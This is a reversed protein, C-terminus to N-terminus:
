KLEKNNKNVALFNFGIDITHTNGDKLYFKYYRGDTKVDAVFDNDYLTMDFKEDFKKHVEKGMEFRNFLYHTENGELYLDLDHFSLRKHFLQLYSKQNLEKFKIEQEIYLLPLYAWELEKPATGNDIISKLIKGNKVFTLSTRSGHAHILDYESKLNFYDAQMFKLSLKKFDNRSIKGAFHGVNKVHYFGDYLVNGNKDISIINGPCPGYCGDISLIITDFEPSHKSRYHRKVFVTKLSDDIFLSDITLKKIKYHDWKKNSQDYIKLTNNALSYKTETGLFPMVRKSLMTTDNMYSIYDRYGQKFDCISNQKFEYALTNEFIYPKNKHIKKVEEWNGLLMQQPTEPKKDCSALVMLMMLAILVKRIM